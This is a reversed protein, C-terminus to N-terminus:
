TSTTNLKIPQKHWTVKTCGCTTSIKTIVLLKNGTNTISFNAPYTSGRHITGFDHEIKDVKVSTNIITDSKQGEGIQYKYLDWIKVNSVPNGIALVKNDSNILFCQYQSEKPFNNLRNIADNSDMYIPYNFRYQILLINMEKVSKPQFFLLFGVRGNFLSDTEEILKKWEFLQLRCSSCGTSDVYLLIKYEKQFCDNCLEPLTEKGSMYCSVNQPFKIEKGTWESVIKVADNRRKNQKCSPLCFVIFMM